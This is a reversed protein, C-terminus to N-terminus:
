AVRVETTPLPAFGVALLAQAEKVEVPKSYYFGQGMQCGLEVLRRAQEETEIGEAIVDMGLERALEGSKQRRQYTPSTEEVTRQNSITATPAIAICNSNRMGDQAIKQRLADWDLTSSRDVEVYGGREQALLDLTDKPMSVKRAAEVAMRLRANDKPDAGNRAAIMIDKALKGFLRGKACDILDEFTYSSKKESM